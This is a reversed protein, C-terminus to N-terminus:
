SAALISPYVEDCARRLDAENDIETWHLDHDVLAWVRSGHSSTAMITEEYHFNLEGNAFDQRAQHFLDRMFNASFKSIGFLAGLVAGDTKQKSISEIVGIKNGCIFVDDGHNLLRGVLIVDKHDAQLLLPVAKPEYLLDAELILTECDILHEAQALSYMNGSNAFDPNEVYTVAITKYREGIFDIILQGRYGLLVIVDTIGADDLADLSREILTLGDIEILCKPRGQAHEGLRTGTGAALIVAKTSM